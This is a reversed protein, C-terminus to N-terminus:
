RAHVFAIVTKGVGVYGFFALSVTRKKGDPALEHDCYCGITILITLVTQIKQVM